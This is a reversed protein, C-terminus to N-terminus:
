LQNKIVCVISGPPISQLARCATGKYKDKEAYEAGRHHIEKSDLM